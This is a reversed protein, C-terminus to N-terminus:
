ASRRGIIRLQRSNVVTFDLITPDGVAILPQTPGSTIDKELTLIRAQNVIVDFTADNGSLSEVFSHMPAPSRAAAPRGLPVRPFTPPIESEESFRPAVPM